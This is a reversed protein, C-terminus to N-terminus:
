CCGSQSKAQGGLHVYQSYAYLGTLTQGTLSFVFILVAIEWIVCCRSFKFLLVPESASLYYAGWLQCDSFFLRSCVATLVTWDKGFFFMWGLSGFHYHINVPDCLLVMLLRRCTQYLSKENNAGRSGSHRRVGSDRLNESKEEEEANNGRM